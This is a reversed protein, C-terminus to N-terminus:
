LGSEKKVRKLESNAVLQVHAVDRFTKWEGGWVLRQKRAEEGLADWFGAEQAKKSWAYRADIIDAAYSNPKGEKTQANHFSFKVTSHGSAALEAQVAVSRWGYFLKPQFGREKLAALVLRVKPALDPHMSQLKKDEPWAKPDGSWEGGEGEAEKPTSESVPMMPAPRHRGFKIRSATRRLHHPHGEPQPGPWEIDDRSTLIGPLAGRMVQRVGDIYVNPEIGEDGEHLGVPGPKRSAVM